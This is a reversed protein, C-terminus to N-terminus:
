HLSLSLRLGYLGSGELALLFLILLQLLLWGAVDAISCAGSVTCVSGSHVRVRVKVWLDFFFLSYRYQLGDRM